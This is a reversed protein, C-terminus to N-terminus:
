CPPEDPGDAPVPRRRRRTRIWLAVGAVVFVATWGVGVMTTVRQWSERALLGIVAYMAAWAVVGPVEYRLFVRYRLLSMGAAMPMLTRVFSVLRAVTVSYLPHRGFFPAATRTHRRYLRAPWGEGHRLWEGGRRGIWFGLSDGTFGGLVAAALVAGLPTHGQLALVTGVSTAVGSPVVLGTVFCTEAVAMLFLVWPGHTAVLEFATATFPEM